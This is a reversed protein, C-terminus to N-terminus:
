AVLGRLPLVWELFQSFVEWSHYGYNGATLYAVPVGHRELFRYMLQDREMM